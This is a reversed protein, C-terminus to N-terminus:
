SNCKKELIFKVLDAGDMEATVEINHLIFLVMNLTNLFPKKVGNESTTNMDLNGKQLNNILLNNKPMSVSLPDSWESEIEETNKAKVKIQYSGKKSWTHNVTVEKGSAYPGIWGSTTGDGWNFLYFLQNDNPDIASTKYPYETNIAGSSPGMPTEPKGPAIDAPNKIRLSPDGFLNTQYYCWRYGNEDIRWINDEKSYHSARGLERIKETFVAKYFSEDYSGSPSIPSTESGLGYRANLICAFAGYPIECTLIEAICDEEGYYDGPYWNDFSGTLCSHSYIFFPKENTLEYFSDSGMKLMYNPYGHGDHNIIQPQVSYIEEVLDEPYWINDDSDYFKHMNYSSPVLYEMMDKYGGGYQFYFASGLHEGVFMIESLYPDVSQAYTITKKVFNSVEEASDACCRGVWVEALLDAEDVQAVSNRDKSEGFHTDCDYNFNGDLCAYYVDSSIDNQEEELIQNLPLGSENAFLGRPPIINDKTNAVDGDGGLLVYDTGLETYAYRIFNRIRAAKDNFKQTDGTIASNYFPNDPNADGWKGTVQYDPNLMIEEVTVIKSSVGNANKFDALDQFNYGGDANKLKNSTIIVYEYTETPSSKKSLDQNYTDIFSPNDVINAVLEDDRPLGRFAKNITSEKTEVILTMHNFYYIEGTKMNFQVPHLNVHLISFGRYAYVGVKSYLCSPYDEVTFKVSENKIFIQNQVVQREYVLPIVRGGIETKYGVGLITKEDTIIRIDKVDKGRPLLIRLPKVPLCPEQYKHTNSLGDITVRDFIEGKIEVKEIKPKSFSYNFIIDSYNEDATSNGFVPVTSVVILLMMIVLSCLNRIHGM